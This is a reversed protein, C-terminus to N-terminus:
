AYYGHGYCNKETNYYIEDSVHVDCEPMVDRVFQYIQAMCCNNDHFLAPCRFSFPNILVTVVFRNGDHIVSCYSQFGESYLLNGVADLLRLVCKYGAGQDNQYEVYFELCHAHIDSYLNMSSKVMSFSNLVSDVSDSFVGFGKDFVRKSDTAMKNLLNPLFNKNKRGARIVHLTIKM